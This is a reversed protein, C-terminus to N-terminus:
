HLFSSIPILERGYIYSKFIQLKESISIKYDLALIKARSRSTMKLMEFREKEEIEERRQNQGLKRSSAVAILLIIIDDIPCASVLDVPSM